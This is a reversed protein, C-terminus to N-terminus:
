NLDECSIKKWDPNDRLRANSFDEDNFKESRALEKALVILDNGIQKTEAPLGVVVYQGSPSSYLQPSVTFGPKYRDAARQARDCNERQYSALQVVYGVTEQPADVNSTGSLKQSVFTEANVVAENAKSSADAIAQAAKDKAEGIGKESSRYQEFAFFASLIATAALIYETPNADMLWDKLTKTPKEM